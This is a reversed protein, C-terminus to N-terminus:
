KIKTLAKKIDQPSPIGGGSRGYFHVPLRGSVVLEVDEVMQGYSMEVVLIAKLEKNTHIIEELGKKPYPWLTVPKFVGINKEKLAVAKAARFMSGYAVILIECQQANISEFRQEEKIITQLKEQLKLNWKELADERIFLSRIINPKRGKAGTLAWPKEGKEKEPPRRRLGESMQGIMGDILIMAPNRYQEALSFALRTFEYAEQVGAPALVILHYDGHGGGKVAQFYDSQAPKIDGLGPGGRMVNIIVAPLQAGALYSIGEQKLSIGPSSSSTMARVGTASAGFVMNIAALESEAQIFVGGAKPMEKAMFAPIENQPTIPYGAYFRCGADLAGYAIAINGSVLSVETKM